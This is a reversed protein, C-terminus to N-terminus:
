GEGNVPIQRISPWPQSPRTPALRDKWRIFHREYLHWSLVAVGLSVSIAFFMFLLRAVLPSQTAQTVAATPFVRRLWFVMLYHFVYLGYSYKGFTRLLGWNWFRGAMTATPAAIALILLSGFLASSLSFRVVQTLPDMMALNGKWAFLGVALVGSVVVGRRAWRVLLVPDFPARVWLALIGGTALADIRCPTLTYAAVLHDGSLALAARCVMAVVMCWGCIKIATRRSAYYIIWPWVLYFHEEVALSWFHNFKGLALENKWSILINSSYCWLWLQHSAAAGDSVRGFMPLIVFGLILVGYYLPFIRLTRRIYFGRFYSFHDKTDYLIGTILFGSLVLFLDVGSGGLRFVRVFANGLHGLDTSQEGGFHYVMVLLIAIGRVADLAPIHAKRFPACLYAVRNQPDGPMAEMQQM